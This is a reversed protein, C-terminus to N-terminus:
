KQTRDTQEGIQSRDNLATIIDEALVLAVDAISEFQSSAHSPSQSHVHLSQTVDLSPQSEVLVVEPVVTAAEAMFGPLAPPLPLSVSVDGSPFVSDSIALAISSHVDTSMSPSSGAVHAGSASVRLPSSPLSSSARVPSLRSAIEKLRAVKLVGAQGSDDTKRKSEIGAAFVPAFGLGDSSM